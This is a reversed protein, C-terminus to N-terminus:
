LGKLVMFTTGPSVLLFVEELVKHTKNQSGGNKLTFFTLNLFEMTNQYSWKCIRSAYKEFWSVFSVSYTTGLCSCRQLGDTSESAIDRHTTHLNLIRCFILPTSHLLLYIDSQSESTLSAMGDRSTVAAAKKLPTIEFIPQIYKFMDGNNNRFQTSAELSFKGM